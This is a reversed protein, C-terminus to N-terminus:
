NATTPAECIFYVIKIVEDSVTSNNFKWTINTADIYYDKSYMDLNLIHSAGKKFALPMSVLGDAWQIFSFVFPIISQGHAVTKTTQSSATITHSVIGSSIIKFTNFRSDFILNNINTETRANYGFKAVKIGYTM